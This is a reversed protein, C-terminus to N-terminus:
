NDGEKADETPKNYTRGTKECLLEYIQSAVDKKLTFPMLFQEKGVVIQIISYILENQPIIMNLDTIDSYPYTKEGRHTRVTFEEEKFEYDTNYFRGKFSSIFLYIGYLGFVFAFFTGIKHSRGYGMFFAVVQSVCIITIALGVLRFTYRTRKKKRIHYNIMKSSKEKQKVNM